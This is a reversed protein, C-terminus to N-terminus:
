CFRMICHTYELTTLVITNYMKFDYAFNYADPYLSTDTRESDATRVLVQKNPNDKSRINTIDSRCLAKHLICYKHICIYVFQAAEMQVHVQKSQPILSLM